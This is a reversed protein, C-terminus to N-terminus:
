EGPIEVAQGAQSSQEACQIVGIVRRAQEPKVMLEDGALLHDAINVYYLEAAGPEWLMRQEIVQGDRYLMVKCGKEVTGDDLIAGKTGCIRWRPRGAASISSLCIDAMAGNAFRIIAQTHDENTVHRWVKDVYFGEVSKIPSKVLGLVWDTFHAGWDYLNGGSVEKRSRWWDRPRNYNTRGCVVQFVEGIQGSEVIGKLTLYDGDLRRNHYCTLMRKSDAAAAIMEDAEELTLCFPKELVVHKGAKLMEIAWPAHLNHPLINVVLDIDPDEALKKPDTFTRFYPFDDLAQNARAEDIDCAAVAALGPVANIQESHRRGMNFAGGYGQMACRIPGASHEVKCAWDLGRHVSKLLAPNSWQRPGHGLANYYVRGEGQTRTWILGVSSGQWPTTAHVHLDSAVNKLLYLEDTIEFSPVRLVAPHTWDAVAVPFKQQPPHSKFQAGLLKAWAQSDPFQCTAQHLGVLAGGSEVFKKLARERAQSLKDGMSYVVLADCGALGDFV